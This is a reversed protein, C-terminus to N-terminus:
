ACSFQVNVLDCNRHAFRDREKPLFRKLALRSKGLPLLCTSYLLSVKEAVLAMSRRLSDITNDIINCTEATSMAYRSNQRLVQNPRPIEQQQNADVLILRAPKELKKEPELRCTMTACKFSHCM